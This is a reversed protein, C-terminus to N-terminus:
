NMQSLCALNLLSLNTKLLSGAGVIHLVSVEM